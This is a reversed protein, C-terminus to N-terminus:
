VVLSACIQELMAVLEPKARDLARGPFDNPPVFAGGRSIHGEAVFNAYFMENQFTVTAGSSSANTEYRMSHSLDGTLVPAEMYMANVLIAGSKSAVAALEGPLAEIFNLIRTSPEAFILTDTLRLSFM